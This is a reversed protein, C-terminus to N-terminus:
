GEIKLLLNLNYTGNTNQSVTIKNTPFSCIYRPSGYVSTLVKKSLLVSDAGVTIIITNKTFNTKYKLVDGDIYCDAKTLQFINVSSSITLNTLDVSYMLDIEVKQNNHALVVKGNSISIQYIIAKKFTGLFDFEKIFLNSIQKSIVEKDTKVSLVLSQSNVQRVKISISNNYINIYEVDGDRYEQEIFLTFPASVEENISVSSDEPNVNNYTISSSLWVNDAKTSDKAIVCDVNRITLYNSEKTYPYKNFTWYYFNDFISNQIFSLLTDKDFSSLSDYGMYMYDESYQEKKYEEKPQINPFTLM